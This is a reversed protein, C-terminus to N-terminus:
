QIESLTQISNVCMWYQGISQHHRNWWTVIIEFRVRNMNKKKNEDACRNLWWSSDLLNNMNFILIGDYFTVDTFGNQRKKIKNPMLKIHERVKAAAAASFSFFFTARDKSLEGLITQTVSKMKRFMMFLFFQSIFFHFSFFLIVSVIDTDCLDTSHSLIPPNSTSCTKINWTIEM